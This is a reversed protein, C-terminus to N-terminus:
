ICKIFTLSAVSLTLGVRHHEPFHLVISVSSNETTTRPSLSPHVMLAYLIKPCLVYETHHQLSRHMSTRKTVLDRRVRCGWPSYLGGPEETWPSRGALISPTSYLLTFRLSPLTELVCLLPLLLFSRPAMGMRRTQFQIKLAHHIASRCGSQAILNSM